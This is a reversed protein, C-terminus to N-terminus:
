TGLKLKPTQLLSALMATPFGALFTGAKRGSQRPYPSKGEQNQFTRDTAVVLQTLLRPMHPKGPARRSWIICPGCSSTASAPHAQAAPEEGKGNDQKWM